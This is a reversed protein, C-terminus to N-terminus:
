TDLRNMECQFEICLNLYHASLVSYYDIYRDMGSVQTLNFKLKVCVCVREKMWITNVFDYSEPVKFGPCGKDM